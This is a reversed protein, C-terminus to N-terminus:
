ASSPISAFSPRFPHIAEQHHHHETSSKRHRTTASEVQPVEEEEGEEEDDEESSDDDVVLSPLSPTSSTATAQQDDEDNSNAEESGAGASGTHASSVEQLLGQFWEDENEYMGEEDNDEGQEEEEEEEEDEEEIGYYNYLSLQPFQPGESSSDHGDLLSHQSAHLGARRVMLVWREKESDELSHDTDHHDDLLTPTLTSTSTSSLPPTSEGKTKNSPSSTSTSPRAPTKKTHITSAAMKIANRILVSRRLLEGEYADMVVAPWSM